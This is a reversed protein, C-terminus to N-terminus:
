SPVSSDKHSKSEVIGVEGICKIITVSLSSGGTNASENFIYIVCVTNINYVQESTTWHM